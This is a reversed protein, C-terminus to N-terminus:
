GRSRRKLKPRFEQIVEDASLKRESRPKPHIFVRGTNGTGNPGGAGVSSMFSDVNPEQKVIDAIQQQHKIMSPFSADQAAETFGFVQSTDEPPIFGM